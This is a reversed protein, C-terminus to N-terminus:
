STPASPWNSKDAYFAMESDWTQAIKDVYMQREKAKTLAFAPSQLTEALQQARAVAHAVVADPDQETVIEDLYGITQAEEVGVVAAQCLARSLHTPALRARATVRRRTARRQWARDRPCAVLRHHDIHDITVGYSADVRRIAPGVALARQQRLLFLAM